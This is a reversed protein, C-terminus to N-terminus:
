FKSHAEMVRGRLEEGESVGCVYSCPILIMSVDSDCNFEDQPRECALNAATPRPTVGSTTKVSRHKVVSM